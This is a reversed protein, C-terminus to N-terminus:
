QQKAIAVFPDPNEQLAFLCDNENEFGVRHM